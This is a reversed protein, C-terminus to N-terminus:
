LLPEEKLAPSFSTPNRGVGALASNQAQKPLLDPHAEYLATVEAGGRYEEDTIQSYAPRIYGADSLEGLALHARAANIRDRSGSTNTQLKRRLAEPDLTPAGAKRILALARKADQSLGGGCTELVQAVFYRAISVANQFLQEPIVQAGELAGLLGAVRLTNGLLKGGWGNLADFLDGGPAKRHNVESEWARFAEHADTGLSIVQLSSECLRRLCDGYAQAVSGPVACVDLASAIDGGMPPPASYLFRACIGKNRLTENNMFKDILLPQGAITIALAPRAIDISPRGIRRVSVPESSYAQAIVDINASESYTGALTELLGAEASRFALTGGNQSMDRGISEPTVDTPFLQLPYVAEEELVRLEETLRLVEIEAVAKSSMERDLQKELLKKKAAYRAILPARRANEESLWAELPAFMMKLAPSKRESPNASVLLYLHAPEEWDGYVRVARRGVTATSIAGLAFVALMDPAVQVSESAARVMDSAVSPLAGV